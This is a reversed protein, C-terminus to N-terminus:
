GTEYIQIIIAGLARVVKSFDLEFNGEMNTTTGFFTGNFYVSASSIIKNTSSDFGKGKIVQHFTTQYSYFCLILILLIKM